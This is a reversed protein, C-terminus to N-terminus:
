GGSKVGCRKKRQTGTKTPKKTTTVPHYINKERSNDGKNQEHYAVSRSQLDNNSSRLVEARTRGAKPM